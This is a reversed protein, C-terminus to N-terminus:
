AVADDQESHQANRAKRRKRWAKEYARRCIRCSRNGKNDTITNEPTFPHGKTCATMGSRRGRGTGHRVIDRMNGAHTDWRLNEIVNNTSDGDNHCVDTQGPEPPPLFALAMLRHIRGTKREGPRSLVVYPRGRETQVKLERGTRVNRVRGDDSVEYNNFGKVPKWIRQSM